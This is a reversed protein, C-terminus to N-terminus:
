ETVRETLLEMSKMAEVLRIFEARYGGRDEGTSSQALEIVDTLTLDGCYGSDRLLM